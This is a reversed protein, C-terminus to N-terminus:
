KIKAYEEYCHKIYLQFDYEPSIIAYEYTPRYREAFDDLEKGSLGTLRRILAKNFRHDVFRDREQQLLRERFRMMSRNKRFQFIRIIEDLDFAAGNEGITTMSGLNPRHFDFVKAYDKRNQLSDQKYNKSRITVEKMLGIPVRLAIDFQQLDTINHVPFKKTPKGQYSFWVSDKEAVDLTYSGASNTITGNGGTSMVSVAELPYTHSSDYVSGHLKYQASAVDIILCCLVLLLLRM